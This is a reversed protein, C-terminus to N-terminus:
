KILVESNLKIMLCGTLIVDFKIGHKERDGDYQRLTETTTGYMEALETLSSFGMMKAKAATGM